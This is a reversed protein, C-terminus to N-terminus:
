PKPKRERASIVLELIESPLQGDQWQLEAEISKGAAKIAKLAYYTAGLAHDAMHATAVAHGVARAVAVAAPSSAERAVVIAEVSAKRAEGVSAKGKEWARAIALAENLREDITEGFLHLVHKACDHAWHILLHHHEKSLPGGRHVAIFRKNRM